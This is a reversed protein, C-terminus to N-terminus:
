PGSEEQIRWATLRSGASVWLFIGDDRSVVALDSIRDGYDFRDVLEGEVSLFHLSGDPGAVLCSDKNGAPDIRSIPPLTHYAGAPLPYEWQVKGEGNFAVVSCQMTNVQSVGCHLKSTGFVPQLAIITHGPVIVERNVQGVSGIEVVTGRTSTCWISRTDKEGRPGEVINLVHDLFRNTWLREGTLSGAQVGRGGWYGVLIQPSGIGKLDLLEADGIGSHKEDPFAIVLKWNNDFLFAQDWGAGTVLYWRKGEADTVGRIVGGDRQKNGPLKVRALKKGANDYRVVAEGKDVVVIEEPEGGDSQIIAIGGPSELDVLKSKWLEEAQLKEPLKRDAAETADPKSDVLSGKITASDLIAQYEDLEERHKARVEDLVDEGALLKEVKRVLEDSSEIMGVHFDQLRGDASVLLLTPTLKVNLIGNANREPDRLLPFSAGWSELTKQVVETPIQPQDTSVAYFAVNEGKLKQYAEELLPTHAKCPACNTGWFELVGVKEKLSAPTVKVDSGDVFSFEKVPKGLDPAAGEPAEPVFRRVLRGNEPVEISVAADDFDPDLAIDELDLSVAFEVFQGSPDLTERQGDIPIEMRRLIMKEKDIWLVRKGEPESLQVRYCLDSGIKEDSLLKKATARPFLPKEGDGSLLMVLQPFLNELSVQLIAQRLEPEPILNEQTTVVPAIAEHIQGPLESAASRVRKGDSAVRYITRGQTSAIADEYSISYRNPRGFLLSLRTFPIETISGTSRSVGRQQLTANDSYSKADTYTAHLMSLLEDASLSSKEAKKSGVSSPPKQACGMVVAFLFALGLPLFTKSLM